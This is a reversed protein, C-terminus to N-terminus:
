SLYPCFLSCTYRCTISIVITANIMKMSVYIPIMKVLSGFTFRERGEAAKVPATAIITQPTILKESAIFAISKLVIAKNSPIIIIIEVSLSSPNKERIAAFVIDKALVLVLSSIIITRIVPNADANRTLSATTSIKVGIIIVIQWLLLRSLMGKRIASINEALIPLTIVIVPLGCFINIPILLPM